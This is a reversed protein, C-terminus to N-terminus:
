PESKESKKEATTKGNLAVHPRMRELAKEGIGTVGLLDEIKEFSGHQSRYEVIARARGPGVGPLLQLEDPTATNVNVVGVLGSGPAVSKAGTQAWAPALALLVLAAAGLAARRVVVTRM